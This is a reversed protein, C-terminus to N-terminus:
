VPFGLKQAIARCDWCPEKMGASFDKMYEYKGKAERMDKQEAFNKEAIRLSTIGMEDLHRLEKITLPKHWKRTRKIKKM